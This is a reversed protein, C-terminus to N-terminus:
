SLAERGLDTLVYVRSARHDPASRLVEHDGAALPTIMRLKLLDGVRRAAEVLDSFGASAGIEWYTLGPSGSLAILVRRRNTVHDAHAAAKSTAPDTRRALKHPALDLALQTSM